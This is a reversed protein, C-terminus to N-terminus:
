YDTVFPSRREVDKVVTAVHEDDLYRDSETRWRSRVCELNRIGIVSRANQV